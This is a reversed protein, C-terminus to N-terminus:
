DKMSMMEVSSDVGICGEKKEIGGFCTCEQMAARLIYFLLLAHQQTQQQFAEVTM